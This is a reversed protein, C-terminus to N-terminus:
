KDKYYDMINALRNAATDNRVLREGGGAAGAHWPDADDRPASWSSSEVLREFGAVDRILPSLEGVGGFRAAVVEPKM